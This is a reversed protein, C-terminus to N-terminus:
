PQTTLQGAQWASRWAAVAAQREQPPAYPDYNMRSGTIRDLAGIAMMREAPDDSELSEILQPVDAYRNQQGARTIAYLRAAPDPSDFGGSSAPPTGGCGVFFLISLCLIWKMMWCAIAM